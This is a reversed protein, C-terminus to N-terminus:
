PFLVSVIELILEPVSNEERTIELLRECMFEMEEASLTVSLSWASHIVQYFRLDAPATIQKHWDDGKKVVSKQRILLEQHNNLLSEVEHRETTPLSDLPLSALVVAVVRSCLSYRIAQVELTARSQSTKRRKS